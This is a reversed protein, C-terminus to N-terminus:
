ASLALQLEDRLATLGTFTRLKVGAERAVHIANHDIFRTALVLDSGRIKRAIMKDGGDDSPCCDIKHPKIELGKLVISAQAKLLGLLLIKM